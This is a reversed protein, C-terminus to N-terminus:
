PRKRLILDGETPPLSFPFELVQNDLPIRLVLDEQKKWDGIWKSRTSFFLWGSAEPTGGDLKASKLSRTSLFELMETLDKQYAQLTAEKEEKKEPHRSIEHQTEDSFSDAKSQLATALDDPDLTEHIVHYHSVFELNIHDTKFDLSDKGRYRVTLLVGLMPEIRRNRKQLEQSDVALTVGIDDAWLGYRYKGDDGREFTCGPKGEEWRATPVVSKAGAPPAAWVSSAVLTVALLGATARGFRPTARISYTLIV